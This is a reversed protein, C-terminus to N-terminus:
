RSPLGTADQLDLFEVRPETALHQARETLFRRVHAQQEHEDFADRDRYLEYFVRGNPDDHPQHCAYVLTGPEKLRVEALTEQALADFLGEHGEKLSFRAVLGFM